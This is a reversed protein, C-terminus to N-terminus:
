FSCEALVSKCLRDWAAAKRELIRLPSERKGAIVDMMQQVEEPTFPEGVAEQMAKEAEDMTLPQLTMLADYEKVACHNPQDKHLKNVYEELISERMSQNSM